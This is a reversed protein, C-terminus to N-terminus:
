ETTHESSIQSETNENQASEESYRGEHILLSSM